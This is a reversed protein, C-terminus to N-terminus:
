KILQEQVQINISLWVSGGLVDIEWWQKDSLSKFSQRVLCSAEVVQQPLSNWINV